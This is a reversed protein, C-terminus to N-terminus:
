NLAFRVIKDTLVYLLSNKIQKLPSLADILNLPYDPLLLAPEIGHFYSFRLFHMIFNDTCYFAVLHVRINM